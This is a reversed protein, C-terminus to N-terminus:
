KLTLPIASGILDFAERQDSTPESLRLHWTLYCALM